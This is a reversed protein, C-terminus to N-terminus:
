LNFHGCGGRVMVVSLTHNCVVLILKLHSGQDETQIDNKYPSSMPEWVRLYCVPPFSQIPACDPVLEGCLPPNSTEKIM